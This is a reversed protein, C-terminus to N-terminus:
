LIYGGLDNLDVADERGEEHKQREDSEASEEVRNSLSRGLSGHDKAPVLYADETVKPLSESIVPGLTFAKCIGGLKIYVAAIIIQMGNKASASTPATM